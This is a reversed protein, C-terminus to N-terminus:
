CGPSGPCPHSDNIEEGEGEANCVVLEYSHGHQMVRIFTDAGPYEDLAERLAAISQGRFVCVSRSEPM